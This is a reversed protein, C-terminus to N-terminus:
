PPVRGGTVGAALAPPLPRGEALARLDDDLSPRGLLEFLQRRAAVIREAVLGLGRWLEPSYPLVRVSRDPGPVDRIQPTSGDARRATPDMVEPECWPAELLWGTQRARAGAPTSVVHRSFELGVVPADLNPPSTHSYSREGYHPEHPEVWIERRWVYPVYSEAAKRLGAKVEAATKSRIEDHGDTLKGFFDLTNRDLMIPVDLGKKHDRFRDVELPKLQRGM